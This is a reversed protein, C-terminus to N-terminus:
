EDCLNIVLQGCHEDFLYGTTMKIVAQEWSKMNEQRNDKRNKKEEPHGEEQKIEQHKEDAM